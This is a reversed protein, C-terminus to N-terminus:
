DSWPQLKASGSISPALEHRALELRKRNQKELEQLQSQFDVLAASHHPPLVPGAAKASDLMSTEQGQQALDPRENNQRELAGLQAQLDISALPHHPYM